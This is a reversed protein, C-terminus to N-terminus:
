SITPIDLYPIASSPPVLLRLRRVEDELLQIRKDKSSVSSRLEDLEQRQQIFAERLENTDVPTIFDANNHGSNNTTSSTVKADFDGRGAVSRQHRSEFRDWDENKPPQNEVSSLRHINKLSAPIKDTTVPRRYVSQQSTTEIDTPRDRREETTQEVTMANRKNTSDVETALRKTTKRQTSTSMTTNAQLSCLIPEKNQGQLWEDTSLAPIAAATLPYIDEQFLESKRPVIMSIPECMDKLTHLKYFRMIECKSTDLGRKSMVGLGRQPAGSQYQSLYFIYPSDEVIEFYRINGDGKGALFMVKTDYDYFPLLVGSSADIDESRLPKML